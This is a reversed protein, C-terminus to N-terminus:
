ARAKLGNQKLRWLLLDIRDQGFFPEGEFVMTPVGWHGAEELAAQNAEIEADFRGPDDEIERDLAALDFGARQAGKALHDGENWPSAGGWLVRSIEYAFALGDGQDAAAQGLRTLRYIYPQDKSVQLTEMDQVIPDPKPWAFPIGHFEGLRRVDKRLYKVWMPNITKFFDDVRVALPLVPRFNFDVDYQDRLKVLQPTALYSYPSRFSWFLDVHLTM